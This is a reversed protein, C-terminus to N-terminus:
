RFIEMSSSDDEPPPTRGSAPSDPHVANRPRAHPPRYSAQLGHVLQRCCREARQLALLQLIRTLSLKRLPYQLTACSNRCVGVVSGEGSSGLALMDNYVAVMRHRFVFVFM